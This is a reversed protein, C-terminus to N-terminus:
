SVLQLHLTYRDGTRLRKFQEALIYAFTPGVKAGELPTEAMGGVFLDINDTFSTNCVNNVTYVIFINRRCVISKKDFSLIRPRDIQFCKCVVFRFISM